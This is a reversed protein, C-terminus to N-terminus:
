LTLAKLLDMADSARDAPVFLHDHYYGSVPNVGMGAAALHSAIRAIFGVADLSSHVNLTIRRCAFCYDLGAAQADSEALILTAGEAEHFIMLPELGGPVYQCTAFVYVAPDLVPQMSALLKGLDTEGVM